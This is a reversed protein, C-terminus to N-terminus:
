WKMLIKLNERDKEEANIQKRNHSCHSSSFILKIREPHKDIFDLSVKNSQLFKQKLLNMDM